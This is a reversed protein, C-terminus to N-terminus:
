CFDLVAGVRISLRGGEKLICDACACNFGSARTTVRDRARKSQIYVRAVGERECGIIARERAGSIYILGRRRRRRRGNKWATFFGQPRALARM